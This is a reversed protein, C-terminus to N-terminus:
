LAALLCILVKLKRRLNNLRYCHLKSLCSAGSWVREEATLHMIFSPLHCHLTLEKWSISTGVGDREFVEPIKIKVLDIPM